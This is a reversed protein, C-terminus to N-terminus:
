SPKGDAKTGCSVVLCHTFTGLQEVGLWAMLVIDRIKRGAAMWIFGFSHQRLMDCLGRGTIDGLSLRTLSVTM